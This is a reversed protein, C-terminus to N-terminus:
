LSLFPTIFDIEEPSWFYGLIQFIPALAGLPSSLIMFNPTVTHFFPHPPCRKTIFHCIHTQRETVSHQETVYHETIYQEFITCLQINNLAGCFNLGHCLTPRLNVFLCVNNNGLLLVHLKVTLDWSM